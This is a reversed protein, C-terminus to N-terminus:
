PGTVWEAKTVTGAAESTAQKQDVTTGDDAYLNTTTGDNDKKNRWAKYLYDLKTMADANVAPAGQGPEARPDDLMALIADVVTDVTAILAALDGATQVAHQVTEVDVDAPVIEFESTADPTIVWNEAMTAVKTTGNYATIIGHEQAGTGGVIVVRDGRYINDTASAGTDLTITGAAGAQATGSHVEFADDVGRLRKGASNTVNHTAGTLVEDWVDDVLNATTYINVTQSIAGSIAMTYALHDGNTEAQTPAYSWQGNGKHTSTGTGTAQTGNDITYYVTPTGGTVASGNTASNMQFATVQSATNKRFSM